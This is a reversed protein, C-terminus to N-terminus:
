ALPEAGRPIRADSLFPSQPAEHGKQPFAPRYQDEFIRRLEARSRVLRNRFVETATAGEQFRKKPAIAIEFGLFALGARVVEGKLAYLKRVDEGVLESLPAALAATIVPRLTHPSILRFGFERAPAFGRVVGRSLGGSYTLSHKISDVGWGEHYLLPNALVSHITLDSDEVPYAKWNEDGGDGDFIFVLDPRRSRLASLFARMVAGCAVDLPRYDELTRVAANLDLVAPPAEIAEWLEEAGLARAGARASALDSGGGISLTYLRLRDTEGRGRLLNLLVAATATSDAGGSFAVALPENEPLVDLVRSTEAALSFQM